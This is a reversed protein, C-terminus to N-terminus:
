VREKQHSELDGGGHLSEVANWVEEGGTVDKEPNTM